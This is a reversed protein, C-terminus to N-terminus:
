MIWCDVEVFLTAHPVHSVTAVTTDMAVDPVYVAVGELIEPVKV